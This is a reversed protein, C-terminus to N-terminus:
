LLVATATVDTGVGVVNVTAELSGPAIPVFPRTDGFSCFTTVAEVGAAFGPNNLVGSIVIVSCAGLASAVIM